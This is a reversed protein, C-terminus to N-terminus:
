RTQPQANQSIFFFFRTIENSNNNNNNLDIENTPKAFLRHLFLYCLFLLLLIVIMETALITRQTNQEQTDKPPQCIYEIQNNHPLQMTPVHSKITRYRIHEPEPQFQPQGSQGICTHVGSSMSREVNAITTCMFWLIDDFIDDRHTNHTRSFLVHDRDSSSLKKNSISIEIYKVVMWGRIKMFVMSLIWQSM